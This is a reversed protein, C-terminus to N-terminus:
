RGLAVGSSKFRERAQALEARLADIEQRISEFRGPVVGLYKLAPEIESRRFSRINANFWGLATVTGRILVDDSVVATMLQQGGLAANMEKRQAPTPGGGDTVVLMKVSKFDLASFTALIEPFQSHSVAEKGHVSVFLTGLQKYAVTKM